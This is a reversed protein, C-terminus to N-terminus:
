NNKLLRIMEPLPYTNIIDKKEAWGRRAQAIGFEAQSLQGIDHSDTNIVMKVGFDIARRIHQDDLDLRDPSSNIELITNTRAAAACIAEFDIQYEERRNLLRGTPHSIIDVNSNEMARIIRATMQRADMKMNSHVGAITFDLDALARDDIDLSGDPMINAECGKLVMLGGAEKDLLDNLKDIEINRKALAAEDLGNEIKLFKTHDAIGIYQYGKKQAEQAIRAISDRGGDWDSHCHLDGMLIGYDIIKPLKKEAARMIEGHGERLEPPIWQLGLRDYIEEESAGAIRSQGSFLGYESLKYGKEQARRRLEINHEKSGTFYQRAAGYSAPELIRLDMNFGDRVRVSSKTGGKAWVKEVEPMSTFYDMAAMIGKKGARPRAVALIDVDGITEKRRRLSGAFDIDALFGLNELREKFVNAAPLIEGLLFRGRSKKKFEIGQAINEESQEGFGPLGAIQHRKVAAELDALDKIGLKQYLIKARKPGIGQVSTLELWNVPLRRKIEEYYSIKGTKIYEEIKAGISEGIGPIDEIAKIGGKKYIIEVDEGLEELAQAAKRYAFPKFEVRDASLIEAIELFIKQLERNAM